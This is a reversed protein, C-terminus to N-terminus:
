GELYRPLTAAQVGRYRLWGLYNERWWDLYMVTRYREDLLRRYARDDCEYGKIWDFVRVEDGDWLAYQSSGFTWSGTNVYTKGPGLEVRGPLHSHGTVLTCPGAREMHSRVHSFVAGPDGLQSQIWYRDYARLGEAWQPRGIADCLKGWIHGLVAVKHVVWFTVRNGMTYFNELPLRIWTDFLREVLHHAITVRHSASPNVEIYPDYEYGHQVLVDEGIQLSSCVDFRLLDRFLSIDYDHNGWIYTIGREQSQRALEGFLKAHAKLVRSMSFAQHFDIADGAIVLHAEEERVMELFAILEEDKGMFADTNSGDGLHLDSVIYIRTAPDIHRTIRLGEENAWAFAGSGTQGM